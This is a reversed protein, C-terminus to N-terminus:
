NGKLYKIESRLELIDTDHKQDKLKLNRLDLDVEDNWKSQNSQREIYVAFQNNLYDVSEKLNSLDTKFGTFIYLAMGSIMTMLMATVASIVQFVLPWYEKKMKTGGVM